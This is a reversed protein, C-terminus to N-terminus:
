LDIKVNPNCWIRRKAKNDRVWIDGIEDKFITVAAMDNMTFAFHIMPISLRNMLVEFTGEFRDKSPNQITKHEVFVRYKEGDFMMEGDYQVVIPGSGAHPVGPSGALIKLERKINTDSLVLEHPNSM